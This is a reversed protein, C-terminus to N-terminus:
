SQRFVYKGLRLMRMIHYVRFTMVVVVVVVVVMVMVVVVVVVVRM